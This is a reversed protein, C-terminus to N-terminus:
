DKLDFGLGAKQTPSLIGNKLIVAGATPDDILDLHGDLDAYVVNPRALAFHLGAAIALGAEDMCGVMSELRAARAVANIQVANFIGGVKMLKINIMDALDRRALRFADRLTLLSEDAMVPISVESTVRGLLDPQGKPTPQELLELKAARTKEVFRKAEALSYGQNADFRLEISKGVKERVKMVREIDEDVNKGGKIKLVKFGQSILCSARRVTEEVPLIGITVSTKIQKRYGGLVVYLPLGALKGLIDHLAMDIMALASPHTRMSEQLMEIIYAIRRPDRGKVNPEIIDRCASLVTDATEGTVEFDPAACGYGAVGTSTELRLFVNTTSDITEYAITYPEKLKFTHPWVHITNIKM